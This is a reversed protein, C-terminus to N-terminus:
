PHSLLDLIVAPLYEKHPPTLFLIIEAHFLNDPEVQSENRILGGPIELFEQYVLFVSGRKGSKM